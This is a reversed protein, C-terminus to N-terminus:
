TDALWARWAAHDTVDIGAARARRMLSTQLDNLWESDMLVPVTPLAAHLTTYLCKLEGLPYDDLTRM